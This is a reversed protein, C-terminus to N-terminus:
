EAADTAESATGAVVVDVRSVALGTMNQIANKINRQVAGAVEPIYVGNKAVIDIGVTVVDDDGVQVRIPKVYNVRALLGKVGRGASISDVGDIELAAFKAISAVVDQSIKISGPAQYANENEM